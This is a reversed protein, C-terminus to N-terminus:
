EPVRSGCRMADCDVIDCECEGGRVGRGPIRYGRNFRMELQRQQVRLFGLDGHPSPASEQVALRCRNRAALVGAHVLKHM